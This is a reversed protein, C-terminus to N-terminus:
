KTRSKQHEKVAAFFQASCIDIVEDMTLRATSGERYGIGYMYLLSCLLLAAIATKKAIASMM